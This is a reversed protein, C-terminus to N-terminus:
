RRVTLLYAAGADQEIALHHNRQIETALEAIDQRALTLDVGNLQCVSELTALCDPLCIMLLLRCRRQAPSLVANEPLYVSTM